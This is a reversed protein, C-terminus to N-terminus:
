AKDGNLAENRIERLTELGVCRIKDGIIVRAHDEKEVDVFMALAPKALMESFILGGDEDIRYLTAGQAINYSDGRKPIKNLM